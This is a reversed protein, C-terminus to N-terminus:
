LQGTFAHHPLSNKLERLVLIKRRYISDLRESEMLVDQHRLAIAKQVRVPPISGVKLERIDKMNVHQVTAGRSHALLKQQM